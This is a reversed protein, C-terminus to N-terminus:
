NGDENEKTIPQRSVSEGNAWNCNEMADGENFHESITQGFENCVYYKFM